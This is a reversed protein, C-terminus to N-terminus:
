KQKEKKKEAPADGTEDGYRKDDYILEADLQGVVKFETRRNNQHCPCDSSNDPPCEPYKSCDDLLRTEGYGKAQLREKQIGRGILYNVCSEARRQSLNINYQNTARTDTHSGIEVIITPNEIMLNYLTDLQKKSQERLDWKDFDYYINRLRYVKDLILKKLYIDVWLTDSQVIGKTTFTESKTLYGEASGSVRYDKEFNLSFFYPTRNLITDAGIQINQLIGEASELALGVTAGEIPTKTPDDEDYVFGQVAINMIKVYEFAFIDDCCTESRISIIGPRNSVFFGRKGDETIKFYMDDTSSNIPYGVNSPEEWKSGSGQAKFVDYGGINVLGDSSFYLTGNAADYFPTAEDRDTNIKAGANKPESYTKKKINYTSFWIDLGGKGGEERNSTFYLTEFGKKSPAIFPHTSTFEPDNIEAGINEPETWATDKYESVYIACIIKGNKGDACKTFYFRKKDPSFNGNAVHYGAVNFKEFVQAQRYDHKNAVTSKYLKIFHDNEVTNGAIVIVTDSPLSSFLLTTDNWMLPAIDTYPSNVSDNLHIINVPLPEDKMKLALACGDAETKAWKKLNAEEGKYNKQFDTFVEKAAEYKANMKLMLAYWYYAHPYDVPDMEAVKLYWDEAKKYDRAIRYSEALKYATEVNEPAHTMIEEYLDSAAYINGKVLMKNAAKVNKRVKYKKEKKPKAQLTDGANETQAKLSFCIALLLLFFVSKKVNFFKIKM